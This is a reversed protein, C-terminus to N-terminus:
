RRTASSGASATSSPRDAERPRAPQGPARRPWRRGEARKVAQGTSRRGLSEDTQDVDLRAYWVELAACGPSRGCRRRYARRRRRAGRTRECGTFGRERGAVALSAALRKVDWELPGPLTEDFDNIDFVLRREPSAFVGFNLLHADGCLQPAPGLAAYPWIPRWSSRRRRSLVRVAVGADARLPDAGAGAGPDDGAGRARRGPGAAGRRSGAPTRSRPAAAARRRAVRPAREAKSPHEVRGRRGNARAAAGRDAVSESTGAAATSM